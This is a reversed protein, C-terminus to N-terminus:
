KGELNKNYKEICERLIKLQEENLGDTQHAEIIKHITLDRNFSVDLKFGNGNQVLPGSINGVNGWGLIRGSKDMYGKATACIYFVGSKTQAEGANGGISEQLLLEQMEGEMMRLNHNIIDERKAETSAM